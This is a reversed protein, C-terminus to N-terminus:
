GAACMSTFPAPILVGDDFPAGVVVTDGSIAVSFGFAEYEPGDSATLKTEAYVLPDIVLPYAAGGDDVELRVGGDAVQMRAELRSGAADFVTLGNYNLVGDGEANRFVVDRRNPLVEARLGGRVGLTLTLPGEGEPRRHVTFGHETGRADNVMWEDLVSDWAYTIRQGDVRVNPQQSIRVESGDRGYRELMLGWTWSGADPQVIFGRSDFRTLWGQGPNRARWAGASGEVPVIAHRQQEHVKRINSWDFATLGDPVRDTSASHEVPPGASNGRSAVPHNAGQLRFEPGSTGGAALLLSVLGVLVSKCQILHGRAM